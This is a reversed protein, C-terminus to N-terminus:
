PNRAVRFGLSSYWDGPASPALSLALAAVLGLCISGSRMAKRYGAAPWVGARIGRDRRAVDAIFARLTALPRTEGRKM